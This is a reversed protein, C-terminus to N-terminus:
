EEGEWVPTEANYLGINFAVYELPEVDATGATRRWRWVRFRRTQSRMKRALPDSQHYMDSAGDM